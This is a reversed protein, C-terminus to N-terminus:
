PISSQLDCYLKMSIVHCYGIVLYNSCYCHLLFIVLFFIKIRMYLTFFYNIKVTFLIDPLDISQVNLMKNLCYRTTVPGGSGGGERPQLEFVTRFLKESTATLFGIEANPHLGYLVPSEPPLHETIYNHYGHYDMNPPTSFGPALMLEGDLQDPHM